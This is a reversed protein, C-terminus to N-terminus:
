TSVTTFGLYVDLYRAYGFPRVRVKITISSTSVVNQKEDIYCECGRDKPNTVDASLEGNATMQLAIANEVMGQWSKVMAPQMTGDENVSIESLVEQLHTDYAIRYAKDITRRATLSRYDDSVLTCLIDDSFFYGSRGVFTRLTIFGKDHVSEPDALEVKKDKLYAVLSQIPGDKVRGINRHVPIAAIRGAIMGMMANGSDSVTDGILIGVRNKTALTQDSLDAAVGSYNRGEIIVFLPAFLSTTAWEALEQAKLVAAYVDDDLGHTVTPSYGQAPTRSAIIGRLRGNAAQVLLKAYALTKDLMDTLSVTNAFAMIWVETGDGATAYFDTVMKVINPNNATTIGLNTKLDDFKRLTYATALSFTGAVTVGSCIIGLVGDPSPIVSGLAGNEFYIKVRPLM